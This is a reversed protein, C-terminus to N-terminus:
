HPGGWGARRAGHALQPVVGAVAVCRAAEIPLMLWEWGVARAGSRVFRGVGDM